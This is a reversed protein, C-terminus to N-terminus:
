TQARYSHVYRLLAEEDTPLLVRIKEIIDNVQLADLSSIGHIAHQGTSFSRPYLDQAVLPMPYRGAWSVFAELRELLEAEITSLSLGLQEGLSLLVHSKLGFAGSATAAKGQHALGAKLLNEVALGYLMLATGGIFPEEIREGKQFAALDDLYQQWLLNASKLLEAAKLLWLYAESCGLRYLENAFHKPMNQAIAVRKRIM